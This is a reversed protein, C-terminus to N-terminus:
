STGAEVTIVAAHVAWLAAEASQHSALMAMDVPNRGNLRRAIQNLNVGIKRLEAMLERYAGGEPPAPPRGALRASIEARIWRGLQRGGAAATWAAHEQETLRTSATRRRLPASADDARHQDQEVDM